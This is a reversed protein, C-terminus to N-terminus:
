GIGIVHGMEHLIISEFTGNEELSRIDDVDFNMAGKLSIQSSTM